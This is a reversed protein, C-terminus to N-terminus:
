LRKVFRFAPPHAQFYFVSPTYYIFIGFAALLM